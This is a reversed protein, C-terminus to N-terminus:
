SRKGQLHLYDRLQIFPFQVLYQLSTFGGEDVEFDTKFNATLETVDQNFKALRSQPSNKLGVAVEVVLPVFVPM